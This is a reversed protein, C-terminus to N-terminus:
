VENQDTDASDLQIKDDRADFGIMDEEKQDFTSM